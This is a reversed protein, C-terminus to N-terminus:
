RSLLEILLLSQSTRLKLSPLIGSTLGGPLLLGLEAKGGLL